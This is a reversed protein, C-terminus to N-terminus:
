TVEAQKVLRNNQVGVNFLSLVKACCTHLTTHTGEMNSVASHNFFECDYIHLSTSIKKNNLVLTVCM